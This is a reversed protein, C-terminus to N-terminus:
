KGKLFIHNPDVRVLELYGVGYRELDLALDMFRDRPKQTKAKKAMRYLVFFLYANMSSSFFLSLGLIARDM